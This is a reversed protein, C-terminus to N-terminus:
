AGDEQHTRYLVAISDKAHGEISTHTVVGPVIYERVYSLMEGSNKPIM